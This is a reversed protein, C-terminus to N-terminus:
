WRGAVAITRVDSQAVGFAFRVRNLPDVAVRFTRPGAGAALADGPGFDASSPDFVAAYEPTVDCSNCAPFHLGLATAGHINIADSLTSGSAVTAFQVFSRHDSM